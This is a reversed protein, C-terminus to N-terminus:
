KYVENLWCFGPIQDEPPKTTASKLAESSVHVKVRLLCGCLSCTGLVPDYATERRGVLKRVLSLLGGCVTCRTRDNLPCTSCIKARNEADNLTALFNSPSKMFARKFIISTFEKIQSLSLFKRVNSSSERCFGSPLNDCMYEITKARLHEPLPIRNLDCYSSIQWVLDDVNKHSEFRVPVSGSIELEYFYVGGPPVSDPRQFENLPNGNSDPM